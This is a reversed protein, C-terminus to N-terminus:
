SVSVSVCPPLVEKRENAVVGGRLLGLSLVSLPDVLFYRRQKIWLFMRSILIILPIPFLHQLLGVVLCESFLGRGLCVTLLARELDGEERLLLFVELNHFTIPASDSKM